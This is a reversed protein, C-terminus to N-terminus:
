NMSAFLTASASVYAFFAVFSIKRFTALTLFQKKSHLVILFNCPIAILFLTLALFYLQTYMTRLNLHFIDNM